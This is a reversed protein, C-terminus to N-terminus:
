VSIHVSLSACVLCACDYKQSFFHYDVLHRHWPLLGLIRCYRSGGSDGPSHLVKWTKRDEALLGEEVIGAGVHGPAECRSMIDGKSCDLDM